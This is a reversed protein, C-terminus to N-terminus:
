PGIRICKLGGLLPCGRYTGFHRKNPPPVTIVFLSADRLGVEQLVPHKLLDHATPRKDPDELICLKIFEKKMGDLNEIARMNSEHRVQLRNHGTGEGNGVILDLDLM